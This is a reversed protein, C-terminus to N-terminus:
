CGDSYPTQSKERKKLKSEWVTKKKDVYSRWHNYNSSELLLCLHNIWAAQIENWKRKEAPTNYIRKNRKEAQKNSTEGM